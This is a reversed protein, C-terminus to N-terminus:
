SLCLPHLLILVSHSIMLKGLFLGGMVNLQIHTGPSSATVVPWSDLRITAERKFRTLRLNHWVGDDVRSFNNFLTVEGSGLNFTYRLLGQDICVSMFDHNNSTKNQDGTWLLLGDPAFARFRLHVDMESGRIKKMIVDDTFHLFSNGYFM